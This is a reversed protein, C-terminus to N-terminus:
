DTVLHNLLWPTLSYTRAASAHMPDADAIAAAAELSDARVIVMGEGSWADAPDEPMVPGAAFVSGQAEMRAWYALHTEMHELVPGIGAPGPVTRILYLPKAILGHDRSVALIETGSPGASM